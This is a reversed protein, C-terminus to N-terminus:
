GARRDLYKAFRPGNLITTKDRGSIEAGLLKGVSASFSGDAGFLIRDAGFTKVMAEVVGQDHASGSIDAFVNPCGALGKLQWHWDGNSLHALIFVAEPYRRAINAFHASHSAFPEPGPYRPGMKMSHMLVPVDLEICKEVIPYQLPDDLTCQTYLKVGVFGMGCVCREIEALAQRGHHPDAFCMGYIFGPYRKTGAAVEDNYAAIAEPTEYKSSPRSVVVKDIYLLRAHAVLRDCKEEDLGAAGSSLSIHEHWDCVTTNKFLLMEKAIDL